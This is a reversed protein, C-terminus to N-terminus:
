SLAPAGRAAPQAASTPHQAPPTDTRVESGGDARVGMLTILAAALALLWFAVLPRARNLNVGSV